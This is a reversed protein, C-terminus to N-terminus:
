KRWKLYNRFLHIREAQAPDAKSKEGAEKIFAWIIALILAVLATIVVILGREPGSKKEPEIATELLQIYAAGKAEDLKAAEYQKTLIEFLVEQYKLNRIADIYKLSTVPTKDVVLEADTLKDRAPRLEQEFFLRRQSAESVAISKILSSLQEFYYNAMAAALKSNPVGVEIMIMGDKGFTFNTLKGLKKRADTM